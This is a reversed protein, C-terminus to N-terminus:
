EMDFEKLGFWYGTKMVYDLEIQVAEIHNNEIQMFRKFLKQADDSFLNVMKEYFGSTDKEVKLAKSLMQTRLKRDDEAMVQKARNMLRDTEEFQFEVEELDPAKFQGATQLEELRSTLFDYHYQEDDRLTAFFQKGIPDDCNDYAEIYLDRIKTELRMAERIAKEINM